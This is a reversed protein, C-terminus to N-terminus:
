SQVHVALADVGGPPRADAVAGSLLRDPTFTTIDDSTTGDIVLEALIRGITPAFKFAHGAGLAVLLDPHGPVAGLAFDRDPTLTYQCTVTRLHRGTGPLLGSLFATLEDLREVVPEFSRHDVDLPVASSDRAAKVTPEGYTPFGYYCPEGAWIWVPFRDPAYASADTPSFYSVQELTSVLPLAVGLPALLRNTWADTCLVVNDATVCGDASVVRVGDVGPEVAQVPCEGRLVAGQARALQQLVATARAAPVIASDDQVVGLVDDPVRFQPWRAALERADLVAFPVDHAGLSDAYHEVRLDGDPPCLVVGGTTTVFREQAVAELDAWDRYASDALRVYSPLHYSRRLIRSTDHSAGRVHGLPFQEFGVVSRGRRSLQHATASGLAGLGVVAVDYHGPRHRTM